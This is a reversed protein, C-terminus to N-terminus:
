KVELVAYIPKNGDSIIIDQAIIAHINSQMVYHPSRCRSGCVLRM